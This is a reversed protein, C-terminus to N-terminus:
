LTVYVVLRGPAALHNRGTVHYSTSVSASRSLSGGGQRDVYSGAATDARATVATAAMTSHATAGGFSKSRTFIKSNRRFVNGGVARAVPLNGDGVLTSHPGTGGGSVAEDDDRACEALSSLIIGPVSPERKDIPLPEFGGNPGAGTSSNSRKFSLSRRYSKLRTRMPTSSPSSATVHGSHSSNRRSFAASQPAPAATPFDESDPPFLGVGAAAKNEGAGDSGRTRVPLGLFQPHQQQQHHCNSQQQQQSEDITNCLTSPRGGFGVGISKSRGFGRATKRSRSGAAAAAHHVVTSDDRAATSTAFAPDEQGRKAPGTRKAGGFMSFVSKASSSQSVNSSTSNFMGSMRRGGGGSGGGGGGGMSMSRRFSFRRGSTSGSSRASPPSGPDGHRRRGAYSDGPSLQLQQNKTNLDTSPFRRTMGGQGQGEGGGGSAASNARALAATAAEFVSNNSTRQDQDDSLQKPTITPPATDRSSVAPFNAASPASSLSKIQDRSASGGSSTTTGPQQHPSESFSASGRTATTARVSAAATAVSSSPQRSPPSPLSPMRPSPSAMRINMIPTNANYDIRKRTPGPGGGPSSLTRLGPPRLLRPMGGDEDTAGELAVAGVPPLGRGPFAADTFPPPTNMTMPQSVPRRCNAGGAESSARSSTPRAARTPPYAPVSTPLSVPPPAYPKSHLGYSKEEAEDKSESKSELETVSSMAPTIPPLATTPVYPKFDVVRHYYDDDKTEEVKEEYKSEATSWSDPAAAQKALTAGRLLHEKITTASTIPKYEVGCDKSMSILLEQTICRNRTIIPHTSIYLFPCM